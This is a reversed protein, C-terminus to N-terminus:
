IVSQNITKTSVRIQLALERSPTLILALPSNFKREPALLRWALVEQIVPLLYALTKGCGTEGALLTNLHNLIKPIGEAQSCMYSM